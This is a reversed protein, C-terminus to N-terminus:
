RTWPFLILSHSFWFYRTLILFKSHFTFIYSPFSYPSILFLLFFLFTPPLSYINLPPLRFPITLFLFLSSYSYTTCRSVRIFAFWKSFGNLRRSFHIAFIWFIFMFITKERTKKLSRSIKEFKIQRKVFIKM